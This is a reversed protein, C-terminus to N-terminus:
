LGGSGSQVGRSGQGGRSGQSARSGKNLAPLSVGDRASSQPSRGLHPSADRSQSNSGRLPALHPNTGAIRSPNGIDPLHTLPRGAEVPGDPAM